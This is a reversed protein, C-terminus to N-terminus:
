WLVRGRKIVSRLFVGEQEWPFGYLTKQSELQLCLVSSGRVVISSMTVYGLPSFTELSISIPETYNLHSGMFITLHWPM